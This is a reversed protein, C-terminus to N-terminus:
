FCHLSFWFFCFAELFLRKITIAVSLEKFYLFLLINRPIPKTSSKIETILNNSTIGLHFILKQHNVFQYIVPYEHFSFYKGPILRSLECDERRIGPFTDRNAIQSPKIRPRDCQLISSEIEM